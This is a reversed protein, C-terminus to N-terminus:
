RGLERRCERPLAQREVLEPDYQTWTERFAGGWVQRLRDGDIWTAVYGGRRDRVPFQSASKLLRWARVQHREAFDCWDYFVVQHFVLRGQDDYFHNVEIVDVRDVVATSQPVIGLALWLVLHM